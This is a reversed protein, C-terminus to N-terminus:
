NCGSCGSCSGGCSQPEADCTDPDEGNVCATLITNIQNMLRDIDQKADNFELMNKNGMVATYTDKLEKDLKALLQEDKEEAQMATSLKIRTMNFIEILNQLEVDADNAAKAAVIRKYEPTAQIAKGLERTMKIINM